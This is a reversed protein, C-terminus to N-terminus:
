LVDGEGRIENRLRMVLTVCDLVVQANEESDLVKHAIEALVNRARRRIERQIESGARMSFQPELHDSSRLTQLLKEVTGPILTKEM